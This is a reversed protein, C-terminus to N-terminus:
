RPMWRPNRGNVRASTEVGSSLDRIYIGDESAYAVRTGDPSCSPSFEERDNTGTLNVPRVAPVGALGVSHLDRGVSYVVNRGDRTFTIADGPDIAFGEYDTLARLGTGDANVVYVNYAVAGGATLTKGVFAVRAGDPSFVPNQEGLLGSNFLKRESSGDASMLYLRSATRRDDGPAFDADERESVFVIRSGDPSYSPQFDQFGDSLRTRGSGDANMSYILSTEFGEPNGVFVIKRADPSWAPSHGQGLGTDGTGDPNVVRVTADLTYYLIKDRPADGAAARGAGLSNFGVGCAAAVLLLALRAFSQPRRQRTVLMIFTESHFKDICDV